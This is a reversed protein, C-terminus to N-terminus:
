KISTDPNHKEFPISQIWSKRKWVALKQYPSSQEISPGEEESLNKESNWLLQWLRLFSFTWQLQERLFSPLTTQEKGENLCTPTTLQEGDRAQSTAQYNWMSTCLLKSYLPTHLLRTIEWFRVASTPRCMFSKGMSLIHPRVVKFFQM